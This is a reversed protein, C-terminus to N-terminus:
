RERKTNKIRARGTRARRLLRQKCDNCFEPLQHDIDEVSHAPSMACRKVRCHGIGFAHGLEHMAVKLVREQFLEECHEDGRCACKLPYISIVADRQVESLGFLHTPKKFYLDVDSVGIIKTLHAGAHWHKKERVHKLEKVLYSLIKEAHWKGSRKNFAKEPLPLDVLDLKVKFPFLEKLRHLRAPPTAGLCAVIIRVATAM